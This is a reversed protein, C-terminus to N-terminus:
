FHSFLLSKLNNAGNARKKHRKVNVKKKAVYNCGAEDCFHWQVDINHINAKHATVNRKLKTKYDCGAEDCFFWQVDINHIAAKHSKMVSPREASYTCGIEDCSYRTIRATRQAVKKRAADLAAEISAPTAVPL